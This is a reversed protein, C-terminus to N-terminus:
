NNLSRDDDVKITVHDEGAQVCDITNWLGSCNIKHQSYDGGMWLTRKAVNTQQVIMWLDINEIGKPSKDTGLSFAQDAPKMIENQM